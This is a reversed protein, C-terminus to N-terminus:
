NEEKSKDQTNNQGFGHRKDIIGLCQLFIFVATIVMAINVFPSGFATTVAIYFMGCAIILMAWLLLTLFFNKMIM